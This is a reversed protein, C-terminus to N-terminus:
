KVIYSCSHSAKKLRVKKKKEHSRRRTHRGSSGRGLIDTSSKETVQKIVEFPFPDGGEFVLLDVSAM